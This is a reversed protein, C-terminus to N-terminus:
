RSQPDRAPLGNSRVTMRPTAAYVAVIVGNSELNMLPSVAPQGITTSGNLVSVRRDPCQPALSVAGEDDRREFGKEQERGEGEAEQDRQIVSGRSHFLASDGTRIRSM